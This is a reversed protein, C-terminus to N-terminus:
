NIESQFSLNSQFHTGLLIGFDIFLLIFGFLSLLRHNGSATLVQKIKNINGLVPNDYGVITSAIAFKVIKYVTVKNCFRIFLLLINKGVIGFKDIFKRVIYSDANNNYVLLVCHLLHNVSVM